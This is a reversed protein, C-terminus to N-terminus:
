LCIWLRGAEFHVMQMSTRPKRKGLEGASGNEQGTVTTCKDWQTQRRLGSSENVRAALM